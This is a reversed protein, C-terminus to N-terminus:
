RPRPSPSPLSPPSFCPQFITPQLSPRFAAPAAERGDQVVDATGLRDTATTVGAAITATM